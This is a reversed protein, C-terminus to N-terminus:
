SRLELDPRLPDALAAQDPVLRRPGLRQVGHLGEQFAAVPRHPRRRFTRDLAAVAVAFVQQPRFLVAARASASPWTASPRLRNTSSTPIPRAPPPLGPRLPHDVGGDAPLGPERGPHLRRPGHPRRGGPLARRPPRLGLVPDREAYQPPPAAYDADGYPRPEASLLGVRAAAASRQLSPPPPPPPATNCGATNHGIAAGAFAGLVGGLLSGDTRHGSAAVQSGITAGSAGGILAGVVGRNGADRQVPTM